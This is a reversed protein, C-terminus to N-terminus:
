GGAGGFRKRILVTNRSVYMVEVPFVAELAQLWDETQDQFVSGTFLMEEVETDTIIIEKASYRRVGAIVYKLPEARYQLRGEQWETVAAPDNLEVVRLETPSVVVQGGAGIIAATPTQAPRGRWDGSRTGRPTRKVEVSGATVTVVVRDGDRRVNFVTGLATITGAGAMVIFPRVADEAIDFLVEGGELMVIRQKFSFNVSLSSKAGMLITSGDPLVLNRHESIDTQHSSVREITEPDLIGPPILYAVSALVGAIGAAVAARRTWPSWGLCIERVRSLVGAPSPVLREFISVTTDSHDLECERPSPIPIDGLGGLYDDMRRSLQETEHFIQRNRASREMWAQWQLLEGASVEPDELRILWEAAKNRRTTM